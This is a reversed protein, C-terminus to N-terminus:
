REGYCANLLGDVVREVFRSMLTAPHQNKSALLRDYWM